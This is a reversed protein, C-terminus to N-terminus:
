GKTPKGFLVKLMVIMVALTAAAGLVLGIVGSGVSPASGGVAARPACWIEDWGTHSGRTRCKKEFGRPKMREDCQRSGTPRACMECDLHREQVNSMTCPEVFGHELEDASARLTLAHVGICAAATTLALL